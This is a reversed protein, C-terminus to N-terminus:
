WSPEVGLPKRAGSVLSVLPEREVQFHSLRSPTVQSIKSPVIVAPLGGVIVRSRTIRLEAPRGAPTFQDSLAVFRILWTSVASQIM